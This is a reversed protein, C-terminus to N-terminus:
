ILEEIDRVFTEKSRAGIYKKVIKFDKDIIFTVPIANIPGYGNNATGDDMLIAFTFGNSEAFSRVKSLSERGVNVAIVEVEDKYEKAIDNFDPMEMRCPPCWTAFFNLLVVKGSYNSLKVSKGYIDNLQFDVAKGSGPKEALSNGCGLGFILLFCALFLVLIKSM